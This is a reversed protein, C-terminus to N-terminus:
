KQDIAINSAPKQMFYVFLLVFDVHFPPTVFNGFMVFNGSLVRCAMKSVVKFLIFEWFFSGVSSLSHLYAIAKGFFFYLGSFLFLPEVIIM